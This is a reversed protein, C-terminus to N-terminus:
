PVHGLITSAALVITSAVAFGIWGLLPLGEGLTV